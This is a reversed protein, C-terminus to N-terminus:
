NLCQRLVFMGVVLKTIVPLNISFTVPKGYFKNALLCSKLKYTYWKKIPKIFAHEAHLRCHM